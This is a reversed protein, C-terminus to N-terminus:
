YLLWLHAAVVQSTCFATGLPAPTAQARAAARHPKRPTLPVWNELSTAGKPSLTVFIRQMSASEWILGLRSAWPSISAIPAALPSSASPIWGHTPAAALLLLLSSAHAPPSATPKPPRPPPSASCHGATHSLNQLPNQCHSSSGREDEALRKDGLDGRAERELCMRRRHLDSSRCGNAGASQRALGEHAHAPLRLATGSPHFCQKDILPSM